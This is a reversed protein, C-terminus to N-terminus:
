RHTRKSATKVWSLFCRGFEQPDLRAFVRDVLRDQTLGFSIM